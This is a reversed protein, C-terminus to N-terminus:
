SHLRTIHEPHASMYTYRSLSMANIYRKLTTQEGFGLSALPRGQPTAGDQGRVGIECVVVKCM